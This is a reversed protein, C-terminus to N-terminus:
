PTAELKECDRNPNLDITEPLQTRCLLASAVQEQTLNDGSGLDTESLNARSLNAKSLNTKSLNAGSLNARSLNAESLDARSLDTRSIGDSSGVYAIVIIGTGDTDPSIEINESLNAGSLDARSLNAETLISGGLDAESLDAGSLDTKFLFVKRLSAKSLNAGSLSAGGLDTEALNTGSLSLTVGKEDDSQLTEDLSNVNVLELQSLFRIVQEKRDGSFKPESLLTLTTAETLTRLRENKSDRLDGDLDLLLTSLQNLYDKLAQQQLRESEQQRLNEQYAKERAIVREQYSQTAIFLVLPIALVGLAELTPSIREIIRVANANDVWNALPEIAKRDMWM